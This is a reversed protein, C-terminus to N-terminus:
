KVWLNVKQIVNMAFKVINFDSILCRFCECFSNGAFDNCIDDIRHIDHPQMPCNRKIM